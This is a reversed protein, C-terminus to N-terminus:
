ASEHISPLEPRVPKTRHIAAVNSTAASTIPWLRAALKPMFPREAHRPQVVPELALM